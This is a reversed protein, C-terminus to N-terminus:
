SITGSGSTHAPPWPSAAAGCSAPGYPGLSSAGCPTGRWGLVWGDGAGSVGQKQQLAGGVTVGRGATQVPCSSGPGLLQNKFSEQSALCNRHHPCAM